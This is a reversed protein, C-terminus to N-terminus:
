YRRAVIKCTFEIFACTLYLVNILSPLQLASVSNISLSEVVTQSEALQAVLICICVTFLGGCCRAKETFYIEPYNYWRDAPNQTEMAFIVIVAM